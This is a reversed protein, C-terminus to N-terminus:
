NFYEVYEQVMRYLQREGFILLRNLCERRVSGLFRECIANAQTARYPIRLVDIGTGKSVRDFMTGFKNDNDRILYKPEEGFPTAERLQQAAWEETPSRTVGFHVVRRSGLEILFFIFM